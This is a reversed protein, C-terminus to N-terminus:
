ECGTSMAAPKEGSILAGRPVGQHAIPRRLFKTRMLIRRASYILARANRTVVHACTGICTIVHSQLVAVAVKPVAGYENNVHGTSIRCLCVETLSSKETLMTFSCIDTALMVIGVSVPM